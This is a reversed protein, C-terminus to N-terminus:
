GGCRQATYLWSHKKVYGVKMGTVRRWGLKKEAATIPRENIKLFWDFQCHSIWLQWNKASINYYKDIKHEKCKHSIKQKLHSASQGAPQPPWVSPPSSSLTQLPLLPPCHIWKGAARCLCQWCWLCGAAAWPPIHRSRVCGHLYRLRSSKQRQKTKLPKVRLM